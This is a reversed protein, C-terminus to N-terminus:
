ARERRLIQIGNKLERHMAVIGHSGIAAAASGTLTALDIVLEPDYQGAWSLADGLLCGEKPM